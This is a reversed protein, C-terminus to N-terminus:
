NNKAADVSQLVTWFAPAAKKIAAVGQFSEMVPMPDIGSGNKAETEIESLPVPDQDLVLEIQKKLTPAPREVAADPSSGLWIGIAVAIFLAAAWHSPRGLVRSRASSPRRSLHRLDKGFTPTKKRIM